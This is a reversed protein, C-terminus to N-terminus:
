FVKVASSKFSVTVDDGLHCDLERLAARTILAQFNEGAHVTVNVLGGQEHLSTIRGAFHNRMSSDLTQRSLVIQNAEVAAHAGASTEEPIAINIKGTRFLQAPQDVQGQFHNILSTPAIRGDFLTVVKDALASARLQDHSSMVITQSRNERIVGVLQEFEAVISKDLYTFPEDFLLVEPDLVLARAIAVKQGEGGSLDRAPRDALRDLGLQEMVSQALVRRKAAPTGRLKLGLEVNAAVTDHLLYPNQPVLGVRRRYDRLRKGNVPVGQYLLEGGTPAHLFALLGLLTSKGSGNPGVLVTVRNAPIDLRNISLAEAATGPYAFGVDTLAYAISHNLM